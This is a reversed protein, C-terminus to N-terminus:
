SKFLGFLGKRVAEKKIYTNDTKLKVFLYGIVRTLVNEFDRSNDGYGSICHILEHAFVGFFKSQSRLVDRRIIIINENPNYLGLIENGFSDIKTTESVKVSVTNVKPQKMIEDLFIEDFFNLVFKRSDFIDKEKETLENYSIFSYQFGKEYQDFVNHFTNINDSIKGFVNDPILVLEEGSQKLIEVQENTLEARQTPTMFVFKGRANLNKVAYAAVDVWGSEDRNTGRVVNDVDEVLSRLVTENMCNKLINKVSDAYATRGVNSRERNLAKKVQASINTINYSFLFNNEVAVLVGNIYINAIDGSKKYVEGYKTKDLPVNYKAFCLFMAKADEIDQESVGKIIFETGQMQPDIPDSFVAHLTQIDFGLKESMKTTIHAYKSNVTVEIGKRYFVALADKLGVGFKGILNFSQLKEKNENQTFHINQIGRGYDRIIWSNNDKYIQIDRTKTLIQEDIANAIIERLAHKIEWHELVKEINLDFLDNVTECCRQYYIVM